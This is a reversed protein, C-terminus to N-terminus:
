RIAERAQIQKARSERVQPPLDAGELQALAEDFDGLRELCTAAGLSAASAVDPDFAHDAAALYNGLAEEVDGQSLAVNALGLESRAAQEPHDTGLRRWLRAALELDGGFAATRAARAMRDPAEPLNKAIDHAERLRRAAELQRGELILMQGLRDLVTAREEDSMRQYLRQELRAQAEHPAGLEVSWTLASRELAAARVSPLPNTKSIADYVQIAQFPNGHGLMVDARWLAVPSVPSTWLFIAMGIAVSGWGFVRPVISPALLRVIQLPGRRLRAMSRAYWACTSGM